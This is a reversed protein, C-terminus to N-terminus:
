LRKHGETDDESKDDNSIRRAQGEGETEGEPSVGRMLNGEGETEGEPSVYRRHGEVDEQQEKDKEAM